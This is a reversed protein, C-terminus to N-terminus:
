IGVKLCMAMKKIENTTPLTNVVGEKYKTLEKWTTNDKVWDGGDLNYTVNSENATFYSSTLDIYIAPRVACYGDADEVEMGAPATGSQSVMAAQTDDWCEGRLWYCSSFNYYLQLKTGNLEVNRTYFTTFCIRDNDSSFLSSAEGLSLLFVNDETDM